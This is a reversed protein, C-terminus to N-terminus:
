KGLTEMGELNQTHYKIRNPSNWASSVKKKQKKKTAFPLILQAAVNCFSNCKKGKRRASLSLLPLPSVQKRKEGEEEVEVEAQQSLITSFLFLDRDGAAAIKPVSGFISIVCSLLGLLFSPLSYCVFFIEYGAARM